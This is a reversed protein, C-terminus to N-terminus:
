VVTLSAQGPKVTVARKLLSSDPLKRYETEKVKPKYEICVQEEPSLDDWIISLEAEDVTYNLRATARLKIGQVVGTKSGAMKGELLKSIIQNRLELEQEKYQGLKGKVAIWKEVLNSFM